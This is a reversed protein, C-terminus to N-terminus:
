LNSANNEFEDPYDFSFETSTTGGAIFDSIDLSPSLNTITGAAAVLGILLVMGFIITLIKNKM